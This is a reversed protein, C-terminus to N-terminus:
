INKWEEESHSKIDKKKYPLGYAKCRKKIGNDSVGYKKAINTFSENRIEQKLTERSQWSERNKEIRCDHCMAAAYDKKNGCIPCVKNETFTSKITRLPYSLYNKKHINGNNIDGILGIAQIGVKNKIEEYTLRTTQLLDIVENIQQPTYKLFSEGIRDGGTTM